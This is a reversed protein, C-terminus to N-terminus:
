FGTSERNNVQCQGGRKGAAAQLREAYDVESLEKPLAGQFSVGPVDITVLSLGEDRACARMDKPYSVYSM